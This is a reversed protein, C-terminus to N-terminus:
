DYRNRFFDDVERDVMDRDHGYKQHIVGALKERRGASQEIDDDTLGGEEKIAGKVALWRGKLLDDNVAGEM